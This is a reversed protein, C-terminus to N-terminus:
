PCLFDCPGGCTQCHAPACRTGGDTRAMCVSGACCGIGADLDCSECCAACGAQKAGGDVELCKVVCSSREFRCGADCRRCAEDIAAPACASTGDGLARCIGGPGCEVDLTCAMGCRAPGTCTVGCQSDTRCLSTLGVCQDCALPFCKKSGSKDAGCRTGPCCDGDNACAELCCTPPNCTATCHALEYSCGTACNACSRPVCRGAVSCMTGECCGGDAGCLQGCCAPRQCSAESCETSNVAPKPAPCAAALVAVALVVARTSM